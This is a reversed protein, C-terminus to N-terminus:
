TAAERKDSWCASSGLFNFTGKKDYARSRRGVVDVAVVVVRAFGFGAVYNNVHPLRTHTSVM